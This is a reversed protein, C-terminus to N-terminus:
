ANVRGRRVEVARKYAALRQEYEVVLKRLMLNEDALVQYKQRWEASERGYEYAARDRNDNGM